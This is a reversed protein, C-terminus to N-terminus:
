KRGGGLKVVNNSPPEEVPATVAQHKAKQPLPEVIEELRAAWLTLAERKEDFYDYVDYVGKIGPRAHALVTEKVNEAVKLRSLGSRVVRRIDHITWPELVKTRRDEGKTRGIARWTLLVKKDLRKKAKSFGSIPKAGDTTTFLCDHGPKKFRPLENLIALLDDTLPVAHPVAKGDRGKMRAAPIVWIKKTLDFERWRADSAERLRLGTLALVRYLSGFPYGIKGTARWAARLEDDDLVRQRRNEEEPRKILDAPSTDILEEDEVAWAFFKRVYAHLRNAMIPKGAEVLNKIVAKVDRRSIDALPRPGWSPMLLRRMEREVDKGSRLRALHKRVYLEFAAAYTSADARAKAAEAERRAQEEAQRRRREEEAPDKGAKILKVWERAKERADELSIMPYEDIRRYEPQTKGPFRKCLVFTKKGKETIRVGFGPVLADWKILRKGAPPPKAKSIATDTLEKKPVTM